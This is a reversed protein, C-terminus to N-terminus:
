LQRSISIVIKLVVILGQMNKQCVECFILFFSVVLCGGSCLIGSVVGLVNLWMWKLVVIFMIYELVIVNKMMSVVVMISCGCLMVLMWFEVLVVWVSCGSVLGNVFVIKVSFMRLVLRSVSGISVLEVVYVMVLINLQDLFSFCWGFLVCSNQRIRIFVISSFRSSLWEDILGIWMSNQDVISLLIIVIGSIVLIMVIVECCEIIFLRIIEWGSCQSFQSVVSVIVVIIIVISGNQCQVVGFKVGILVYGVICLVIVGVGLVLCFGGYEIEDDVDFLYVVIGGGVDNVYGCCMLQVGEDGVYVYYCYIWWDYGYGFCYGQEIGFFVGCLCM